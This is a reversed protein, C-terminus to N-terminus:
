GYRITIRRFLYCVEIAARIKSKHLWDRRWKSLAVNCLCFFGGMLGGICGIIAFIPVEYVHYGKTVGVNFITISRLDYVGSFGRVIFNVTFTAMLCSFFTRWTLSQSWYSSVEELAFLVGGIPSGFAASVGAATGISIFDRKDRSNRFNQMLPLECGLTRSKWEGLAGGIM